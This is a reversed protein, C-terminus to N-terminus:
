FIKEECKNRKEIRKNKKNKTKNNNNNKNKNKFKNGSKIGNLSSGFDQNANLFWSM